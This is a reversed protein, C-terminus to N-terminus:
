EFIANHAALVAGRYATVDLPFLELFQARPAATTAKGLAYIGKSLM